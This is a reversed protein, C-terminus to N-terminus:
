RRSRRTRSRGGTPAARSRRCSRRRADAKTRRSRKRAEALSAGHAPAEEATAPSAAGSGKAAAPRCVFIKRRSPTDGPGTAEFPGTVQVREILPVGNMNQMDHDRTFPQLPEVSEAHNKAIFSVGVARRGAKVPVRTRLREDLAQKAAALNTDSLKNDEPGGVPAIFVRAGDVTIELQHPWELGPVYGVINQILSVNFEYEADLPFNHHILIGGRTGLPLGEIHDSQPRDPPVPYVQSAPLISTDGVALSSIRRSATLYQELLLPSVKLM